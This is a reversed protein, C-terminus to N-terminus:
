KKIVKTDMVNHSCFYSTLFSIYIRKKGLQEGRFITFKSFVLQLAFCCFARSTTNCCNVSIQEM